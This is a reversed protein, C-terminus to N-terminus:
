TTSEKQPPPPLPMWHTLANWYEIVDHSHTSRWGSGEHWYGITRHGHDSALMIVPGITSGGEAKPATEITRWGSQPQGTLAADLIHYAAIADDADIAEKAADIQEWLLDIEAAQEATIAMHQDIDHCLATIEGRLREVEVRLSATKAEEAILNDALDKVWQIQKTLENNTAKHKELLTNYKQGWKNRSKNLREVDRRYEELDVRSQEIEDAGDRLLKRWLATNFDADAAERMKKQIDSM